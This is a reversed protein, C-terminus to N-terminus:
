KFVVLYQLLLADEHYFVVEDARLVSGGRAHLCHCGKSLLERQTYNRAGSDINLPNGYATAYLGMIGTNSRGNAWYTGNYSTYNWSKMSSPATYIGQGYMKGTIQANPNLKLGNMAVSLWNENRSGHWFQKINTIGYKECYKDFREKQATDVVRYIQAVKGKLESSIRKMVDEKQKDTTYYIEFRPNPFGGSYSQTSMGEMASVLSEEREVIEKFDEKSKAFLSSVYRVSRPSLAVLEKLTNNFYTPKQSYKGLKNVLKRAEKVQTETVRSSILNEEVYRTAFGKLLSYLEGNANSTDVKEENSAKHEKGLYTDSMDVYGKSLKEYYLIWFQELPYPEKVRRPAYRGSTEGIRGYEVEIGNLSPKMHYFKYNNSDSNVCVLYCEEANHESISCSDDILSLHISPYKVGEKIFSGRELVKYEVYDCDTSIAIEGKSLEFEPNQFINIAVDKWFDDKSCTYEKEFNNFRLEYNM